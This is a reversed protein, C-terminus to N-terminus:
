YFTFVFLLLNSQSVIDFNMVDFFLQSLLVTIVDTNLYFINLLGDKFDTLMLNVGNSFIRPSAHLNNSKSRTLCPSNM